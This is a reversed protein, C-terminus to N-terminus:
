RARPVKIARLVELSLVLLRGGEHSGFWEPHELYDVLFNYATAQYATSLRPEVRDLLKSVNARKKAREVQTNTMGLPPVLRDLPKKKVVGVRRM